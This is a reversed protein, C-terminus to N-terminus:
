SIRLRGCLNDLPYGIVIGFSVSPDGRLVPCLMTSPGGADTFAGPNNGKTLGIAVSRLVKGMCLLNGCLFEM